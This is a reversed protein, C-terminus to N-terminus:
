KYKTKEERKAGDGKGRDGRGNIGRDKKKKLITEESIYM